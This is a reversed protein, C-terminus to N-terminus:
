PPLLWSRTGLMPLWGNICVGRCPTCAVAVIPVSAITTLRLVRTVVDLAPGVVGVVVVVSLAVAAALAFAFTPPAPRAARGLISAVVNGATGVSLASAGSALTDAATAVRSGRTLRFVRTRVYVATSTPRAAVATAIASTSVRSRKALVSVVTVADIALVAAALRPLARTIM